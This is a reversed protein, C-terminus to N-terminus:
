QTSGIPSAAGSVGAVMATSLVSGVSSTRDSDSKNGAVWCASAACSSSDTAAGAFGVCPEPMSDNIRPKASSKRRKASSHFPTYCVDEDDACAGRPEGGRNKKSSGGRRTRDEDEVAGSFRAGLDEDAAACAAVDRVRM